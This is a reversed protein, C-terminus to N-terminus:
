AAVSEAMLPMGTRMIIIKKDLIANVEKRDAIELKHLSKSMTTYKLIEDGKRITIQGVTDECVTVQAHRFSYGSGPRKIQYITGSSVFELNKSLVRTEQTSLIMDLTERSINLPRHSDTPNLPEVAFKSNHARIFEPLYANAKEMSSIGRLRMEKILRDQLTQNLREVRGKAQPSNALIIEIKLEQMARHFQTIGQLGSVKEPKTVTFVSYKDTYFAVPRGYRLVYDRVCRFYGMTTEAPEFRLHMIRSTADDIFALLSCRAERGEFWDHPSGDVQILEGVQSRRARSQHTIMKKRKKGSWLEKEIMWQRLKERSVKVGNIELLKEAAFTPRFDKYKESVILMIKEKLSDKFARSAGGRWKGILGQEGDSRFRKALRKVQRSSLGLRIAAEQTTLKKETLSQMIHVRNLEDISM